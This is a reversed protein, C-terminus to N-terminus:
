ADIVIVKGFFHYDEPEDSPVMFVTGKDTVMSGQKRYDKRDTEDVRVTKVGAQEFKDVKEFAWSTLVVSDKARIFAENEEVQTNFEKQIRERWDKVFTTFMGEAMSAGFDEVKSRLYSSEILKGDIFLGWKDPAPLHTESVPNGM